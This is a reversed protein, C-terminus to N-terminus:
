PTPEGSLTGAYREITARLPKSDPAIVLGQAWVARAEARAGSVWLVEGWHAAIEADRSLRWARELLPLASAADGRRFRVWALSDLFAANDPRHVLASRILREARPLQRGRDALTYGLANMVSPDNPRKALLREFEEIAPKQRGAADLLVARHYRLEPHEPYRQLAKDLRSLAEEHLTAESLVAARSLEIQIADTRFSRLLEDYLQMAADLEGRALLLRAARARVPLGAGAAILQRYGQLAADARGRREAITGLYFLAEGAGEDASLRAGFRREAEALDGRGLALLALRRDAEVAHEQTDYEEARQEIRLLAERAEDERRLSILTEIEAFRHAEPDGISVLRAEELAREAEGLGAAALAALRISPSDRGVGAARAEDILALCARLADSACAMRALSSLVSEGARKRDILDKFLVWAAVVAEGEALPPLIDALAREPEVDPKVLLESFVERAAGIRFTELAITGVLRLAQPNEGDLERLREAASWAAPLHRCARAVEIARVSARPDRDQRAVDLYAEAASRCDGTRLALEALQLAEAASDAQEARLPTLWLVPLLLISWLGARLGVNLRPYRRPQRSPSAFMTVSVIYFKVRRM